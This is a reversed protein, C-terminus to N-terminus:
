NVSSSTETLTQFTHLFVLRTATYAVDMIFLIIVTLVHISTTTNVLIQLILKEVQEYM